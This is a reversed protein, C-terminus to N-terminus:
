YIYDGNAISLSGVTQSLTIGTAISALSQNASAYVNQNITSNSNIQM